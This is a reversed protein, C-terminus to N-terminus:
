NLVCSENSDVFKRRSFLSMQGGGGRRGIGQSNYIRHPFPCDRAMHSYQNCYFCSGAYPAANPAPQPFGQNTFVPPAMFPPPM